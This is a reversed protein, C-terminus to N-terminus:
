RICMYVYLKELKRSSVYRPVRWPGAMYERPCTANTLSPLNPKTVTPQHAGVDYRLVMMMLM